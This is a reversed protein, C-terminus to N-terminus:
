QGRCKKYKKGSGCPGPDNRGVQPPARFPKPVADDLNEGAARLAKPPPLPMRAPRPKREFCGWGRAAEVVDTFPEVPPRTRPAAFEAAM